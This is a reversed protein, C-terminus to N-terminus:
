EEMPPIIGYKLIYAHKVAIMTQKLIEALSVYSTDQKLNQKLQWISVYFNQFYCGQSLNLINQPTSSPSKYQEM